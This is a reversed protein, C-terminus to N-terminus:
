KPWATRFTSGGALKVETWAVRSEKPVLARISEYGEQAARKSKAEVCLTHEGERGWSRESAIILNPKRRLYQRIQQEVKRDTGSAYSGFTITLACPSDPPQASAAPAALTLMVVVPGLKM